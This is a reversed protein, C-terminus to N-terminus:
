SIIPAGVNEPTVGYNRLIEVQGEPTAGGHSGMAPIIFPRGGCKKVEDVIAAIIDAINSIGRSGATVAIRSGPKIRSQLNISQLQKSVEGKVDQLKSSYLMQEVVFMRPLVMSSM